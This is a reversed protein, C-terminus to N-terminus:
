NQQQRPARRPLMFQSHSGSDTRAAEAENTLQEGVGEKERRNSRHQANESRVTSQRQDLTQQRSRREGGLDRNADVQGDEKEADRHRQRRAYQEPKPRRQLERARVDALDHLGAGTPYGAADASASGM